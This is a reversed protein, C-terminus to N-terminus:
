AASLKLQLFLHSVLLNQKQKKSCLGVPDFCIWSASSKSKPSPILCTPSNDGVGTPSSTISIIFPIRICCTSLINALSIARSCALSPSEERFKTPSSDSWNSSKSSKNPWSIHPTVSTTVSEFNWSWHLARGLNEPSSVCLHCCRDSWNCTGSCITLAIAHRCLIKHDSSWCQHMIKFNAVFTLIM